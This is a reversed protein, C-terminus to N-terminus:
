PRRRSWWRRPQEETVADRFAGATPWRRAPDPELCRHIADVVNRPLLPRRKDLAVFRGAQQAALREAFTSAEFPLAGSLMHYGLVGLAYIDSRRDADLANTMQEPAAFAPSGAPAPAGTPGYDRFPVSAIGFDGLLVRTAANESAFFVNEPKLDRHLVGLKHLHGVVDCLAGLVARTETLTLTKRAALRDALSEALHPMVFAIAEDHVVIDYIPVVGPHALQATLRAERIFQERYRPDDSFPARLSKVAVSRHLLTDRALYVVGRGGRGIERVLQYRDGLAEALGRREDATETPLEPSPPIASTM